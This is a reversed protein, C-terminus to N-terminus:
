PAGVAPAAAEPEAGATDGGDESRRLRLTFLAGGGEANGATLRGGFDRVINYSISLGLGLGKGPQKTTFFPDFAKALVEEPLGPGHDRVRLEVTDEGAAIAIAIRPPDPQGAMADLANSVLNVIVQQLRVRGGMVWIEGAAGSVTVKAGVRQLQAEMLSLADALAGQLLVPGIQEQPRRAFNRLHRSITAMRDAMGSIRAINAQAEPLRGRELFATANDSFAKVAALPQNFEHSLAASMQGLAALKGAQVLEKQTARLRDETARREQVELVLKRNAENLDATREAVRRELLDQQTRQAELQELLRLRRQVFVAALLGLMLITLVIVALAVRAQTIAPAIPTLIAVRWGARPIALVKYLAPAGEGAVTMLDIGNWRTSVTNELPVLADLPYQRDEAIRARAEPDLPGLTRFHWEPRNSMFIVGSNDVVLIDSEGGRWAEEFADVTFKVAVVGIVRGAREVPAAYFYGREGSTTGLAFYRGLGGDRAQTFYPRYQFNRGVFSLEKLYSSAAITLGSMDMIYVDSAGLVFTDQRFMENVEAVLAPDEPNELLETLVPREAILGPLAEFRGLAGNLGEVALRLTSDSRERVEGVFFAELRPLAGISVVVAIALFASLVAPAGLRSSSRILPERTTM